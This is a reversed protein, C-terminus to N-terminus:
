LYDELATALTVAAKQVLLGRQAVNARLIYAPHNIDIIPVPRHPHVSWKMKPDLWDRALTGVAVILRLKTRPGDCLQFFDKLRDSCQKVDAYSPETAKGGDEGRPICGTLNGFAATFDLQSLVRAETLIADLLKGAPGVFPQGLVNESEGPAEGVFVVSCPVTGKMLVVRTGPATCLSSGCGKGWKACFQQYPSQM